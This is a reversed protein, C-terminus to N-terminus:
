IFWFCFTHIPRLTSRTYAKRRTKSDIIAMYNSEVMKKGRIGPSQMTQQTADVKSLIWMPENVPSLNAFLDDQCYQRM